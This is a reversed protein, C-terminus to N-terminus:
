LSLNGGTDELPHHRPIKGTIWIKPLIETPEKIWHIRQKSLNDLASKVEEPM